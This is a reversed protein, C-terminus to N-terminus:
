HRPQLIARVMAMVGMQVNKRGMEAWRFPEAENFRELEVQEENHRHANFIRQAGRSKSDHNSSLKQVLKKQIALLAREAELLEEILAIDSDLLDQGQLTNWPKERM